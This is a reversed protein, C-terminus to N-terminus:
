KKKWIKGEKIELLEKDTASRIFELLDDKSTLELKNLLFDISIGPYEEILKFAKKQFSSDDKELSICYDCKGCNSGNSEDFYKLIFLERCDDLALYNLIQNVNFEVVRKRQMFYSSYNLAEASKRQNLFWLIPKERKKFYHLVNMKDLEDLYKVVQDKSQGIKNAILTENIKVSKNFIGEYGRILFNLLESYKKNAVEFTYLNDASMTMYCASSQGVADSLQIWGELELMKIAHFAEGSDIQYKAAFKFLDFDLGKDTKDGIGIQFYNALAQYTRRVVTIEPFQRNTMQQLNLIDEGNYLTLAFARKGDRGARGAEQYYAEISDPLDLHIVIRVNAKDIGMGFANTCVMIGDNSEIWKKQKRSREDASLGAHYYDANLGKRVLSEAIEKTKRRNRCYVVASSGLRKLVHVMRGEKDECHEVLYQLNDKAFSKRFVSPNKLQLKESIDQEVRGTASATLALITLEPFRERIKCIGFYAPRFDYGWQSICHAEDVALLNVNMYELRAMFMPSELREPAIYLFKYDGYICNDIAADISKSSLGSHIALARIGKRRLAQVQDLMLAVLPTVVICIGDEVLAPVQYCISKGGGTPLLAM